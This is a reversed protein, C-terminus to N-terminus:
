CNLAPGQTYIIFRSWILISLIASIGSDAILFLDNSVRLFTDSTAKFVVKLGEKGNSSVQNTIQFYM